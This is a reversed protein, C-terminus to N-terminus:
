KLFDSLSFPGSTFCVRNRQSNVYLQLPMLSSNSKWIQIVRSVPLPLKCNLKFRFLLMMLWTFHRSSAVRDCVSKMARGNLSLLLEKREDSLEKFLVEDEPRTEADDNIQELEEMEDDAAQWNMAAADRAKKSAKTSRAKLERGEHVALLNRESSLAERRDALLAAYARLFTEAEGQNDLNRQYEQGDAENEGNNLPATLLQTIRTRWEWLLESQDNLVDVIDNGEKM